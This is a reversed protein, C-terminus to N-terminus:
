LFSFFDHPCIINFLLAITWLIKISSQSSIMACRVIVIEPAGNCNANTYKQQKTGM